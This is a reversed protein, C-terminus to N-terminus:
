QVCRGSMRYIEFMYSVSFSELTNWRRTLFVCSNRGSFGFIFNQTYFYEQRKGETRLERVAEALCCTFPTLLFFLLWICFESDDWCFGVILWSGSRFLRGMPKTTSQEGIAWSVPTRDWTADYWLSLFLYKIGGQKVSLMIPVNWPYLPAIWTFSNRRGRCRPTTAISFPGKSYGEVVGGVKSVKCRFLGEEEAGYVYM